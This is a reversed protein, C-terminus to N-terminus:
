RGQYQYGFFNEAKEGDVYLGYIQDKVTKM